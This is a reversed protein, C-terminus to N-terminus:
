ENDEGRKNKFVGITYKPRLEWEERDAFKIVRVMSAPGMPELNHPTLIELLNWDSLMQAIRNRRAVDGESMESELGDMKMMEKFHLIYFRGKKHLIHASQSLTKTTKSSVGMRTLTEKIKRFGDSGIPKVEVANELINEVYGSM